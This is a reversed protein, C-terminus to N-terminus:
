WMGKYVDENDEKGLSAVFDDNTYEMNYSNENSASLADDDKGFSSTAFLSVSTVGENSLNVKPYEIDFLKSDAKSIPTPRTRKSAEIGLTLKGNEHYFFGGCRGAIRRLFDYFSENYQVLYPFSVEGVNILDADSCSKKCIKDSINNEMITNISEGCYVKSYKDLTLLKDPSYCHLTVNIGTSNKSISFDHVYYNNCVNILEDAKNSEDEGTFGLFHISCRKSGSCLQGKLVDALEATDDCTASLTIDVNGPSFLRKDYEVSVCKLEAIIKKTTTNTTSDKTDKTNNKKNDDTNNDKNDNDDKNDDKNDNNDKNNDKNNDTNNNTNNNTTSKTIKWSRFLM